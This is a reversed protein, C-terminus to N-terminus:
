ASPAACSILQALRQALRTGAATDEHKFYCHVDGGAATAAVIRQAWWALQEDSYSDRRLRLYGFPAWSLEGEGAPREDTDAVCRAIGREALLPWAELWSDHRFELASATGAPIADLFGELLDRDYVRTPPFQFRIPGLRDGLVQVGQVFDAMGALARKRDPSYTIMRHAKVAFRFGEPTQELWRRLAPETPFQRFTYNIEVSGFVGAYYRLMGAAAVGKPYFVGNRWADYGFGSTGLYLTGAM